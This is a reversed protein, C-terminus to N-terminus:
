LMIRLLVKQNLIKYFYESYDLLHFHKIHVHVQDLLSLDSGGYKSKTTIGFFGMEGIKRWLIKRESTDLGNDKDL